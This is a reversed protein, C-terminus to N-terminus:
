FIYISMKAELIFIILKSYVDFKIIMVVPICIIYSIAPVAVTNIIIFFVFDVPYLSLRFVHSTRHRICVVYIFRKKLKKM